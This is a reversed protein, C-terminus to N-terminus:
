LRGGNGIRAAVVDAGNGRVRAMVRVEASVLRSPVFGIATEMRRVIRVIIEPEPVSRPPPEGGRIKRDIWYRASADADMGLVVRDFLVRDPTRPPLNLAVIRNSGSWYKRTTKFVEAIEALSLRVANSPHVIVALEDTSASTSSTDFLTSLVLGSGSLLCMRRDFRPHNAM